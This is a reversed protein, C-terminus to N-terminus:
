AQKKKQILTEIYDVLQVITCKDMFLTMAEREEEITLPESLSFTEEITGLLNIADISDFEYLEVLNQNLDPNEIEFDEKLALLIKEEITARNM